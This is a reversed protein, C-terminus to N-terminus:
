NQKSQPTSDQQQQKQKKEEKVMDEVRQMAADIQKQMRNYSVQVAEQTIQPLQQMLKKGTPSAYFVIMADVDAHNLHRQYIPIMDDLMENMPLNKLTEDSIQSLRAMQASTVQPYRSQITEITMAHMQQQMSDMMVSTQHRIDMVDFLKQIDEKTAPADAAAEQAYAGCGLLFAALVILIFNKM